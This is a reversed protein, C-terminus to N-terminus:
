RLPLGTVYIRAALQQLEGLLFLPAWTPLSRPNSLGLGQPSVSLWRVMLQITITPPPFRAGFAQDAKNGTGDKTSVGQFGDRRGRACRRSWWESSAEMDGVSAGYNRVRSIGLLTPCGDWGM